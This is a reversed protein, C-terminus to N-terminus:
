DKENEDHAERESKHSPRPRTQTASRTTAASFLWGAAPMGPLLDPAKDRGALEIM